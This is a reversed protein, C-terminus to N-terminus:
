SVLFSGPFVWGTIFDYKKEEEERLKAVVPGCSGDIHVNKEWEKEAHAEEKEAQKPAGHKILMTGWVLGTAQYDVSPITSLVSADLEPDRRKRRNEQTRPEKASCSSSTM